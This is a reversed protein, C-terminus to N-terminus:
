AEELGQTAWPEALGRRRIMEQLRATDVMQYTSPAPRKM